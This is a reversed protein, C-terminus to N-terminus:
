CGPSIMVRPRRHQKARLSNAPRATNSPPTARRAATNGRHGLEPGAFM